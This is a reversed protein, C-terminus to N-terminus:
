AEHSIGALTSELWERCARVGEAYGYNAGEYRDSCGTDEVGCHIGTMDGDESPFGGDLLLAMSFAKSGKSIIHEALISADVVSLEPYAEVAVKLLRVAYTMSDSKMTRHQSYLLSDLNENAEGTIKVPYEPKGTEAPRGAM